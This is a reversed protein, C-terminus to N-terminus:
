GIGKWAGALAALERPPPVFYSQRVDRMLAFDSDKGQVESSTTATTSSSVTANSYVSVPRSSTVSNTANVDHKEELGSLPSAYAAPTTRVPPVPSRRYEPPKHAEEVGGNAEGADERNAGVLQTNHHHLAVRHLVAAESLSAALSREPTKPPLNM